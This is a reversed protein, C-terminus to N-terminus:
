GEGGGRQAKIPFMLSMPVRNHPHVDSSTVIARERERERYKYTFTWIYITRICTFM